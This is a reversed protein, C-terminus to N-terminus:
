LSNKKNKQKLRWRKILQQHHHHINLRSWSSSLPSPQSSSNLVLSSLRFISCFDIKLCEKKKKGSFFGDMKHTSKQYSIYFSSVQFFIFCVCFLFLHFCFSLSREQQNGNPNPETRTFKWWWWWWSWLRLHIDLYLNLWSRIKKLFFGHKSSKRRKKKFIKM